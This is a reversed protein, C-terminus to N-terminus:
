LELVTVVEGDGGDLRFNIECSWRAGTGNEVRMSIPEEQTKVGGM